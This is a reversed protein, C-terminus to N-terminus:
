EEAELRAGNEAIFACIRESVVRPRSARMGPSESKPRPPANVQDQM